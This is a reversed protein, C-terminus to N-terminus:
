SNGPLTTGKMYYMASTFKVGLSRLRFPVVASELVAGLLQRVLPLIPALVLSVVRLWPHMRADFRYYPMSRYAQPHDRSFLVSSYQGCVQMKRCVTRLDLEDDHSVAAGPTNRLRAGANVLRLLLDRDEFGYHTYEPSFGGSRVFCDRSVLINATTGDPVVGPHGFTDLRSRTLQRQYRAWFGTGAAGILGCSVDAGSDISKMHELLFSDGVPACDSDLFLIYEGTGYEAGRNRAASRGQNQTNRLVRIQGGFRAALLEYTNDSSCDDVVIITLGYAPPLQQNLLTAVTDAVHPMGQYSPIVADILM